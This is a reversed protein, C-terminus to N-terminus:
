RVSPLPLASHCPHLRGPRQPWSRVQGKMEVWAEVKESFVGQIPTGKAEKYPSHVIGIPHMTIPKEMESTRGVKPAPTHPAATQALFFLALACALSM